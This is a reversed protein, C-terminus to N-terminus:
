AAGLEIPPEIPPWDSLGYKLCVRRTSEDFVDAAEHGRRRLEASVDCGRRFLELTVLGAVVPVEAYDLPTVIWATLWGLLIEGDLGALYRTM